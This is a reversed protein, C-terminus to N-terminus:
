LKGQKAFRALNHNRPLKYIYAGQRAIDCDFGWYLKRMGTANANPGACPFGAVDFNFDSKRIYFYTGNM